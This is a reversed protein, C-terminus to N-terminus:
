DARQYRYSLPPNVFNSNGQYIVTILPGAIATFQQRPAHQRKWPVM